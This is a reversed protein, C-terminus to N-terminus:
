HVRKLHDDCDNGDDRDAPNDLRLLLCLMANNLILVKHTGFGV